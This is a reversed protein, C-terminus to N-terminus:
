GDEGVGEAWELLRTCQMLESEVWGRMDNILRELQELYHDHGVLTTIFRERARTRVHGDENYINRGMAREGRAILEQVRNNLDNARIIYEEFIYSANSQDLSPSMNDCLGMGRNCEDVGTKVANLQDWFNRVTLVERSSYGFTSGAYAMLINGLDIPWYTSGLLVFPSVNASVSREPRPRRGRPTRREGDM